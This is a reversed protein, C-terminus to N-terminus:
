TSGSSSIPPPCRMGRWILIFALVDGVSRVAFVRSLADVDHAGIASFIPDTAVLLGFYLLVGLTTWLWDKSSVREPAAAINSVLTYATFSMALLARFPGSFTQFSGWEGAAIGIGVYTAIVLPIAVRLAIRAVPRVQWYSLAWFLIADELPQMLAIFWLNSGRTMAIAIQMLDAVFFAICWIAIWRRAASAARWRPVVVLPPLLQALTAAAPFVLIWRPM